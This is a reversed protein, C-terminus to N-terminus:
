RRRRRRALAGLAGLLVIISAPEPVLAVPEVPVVDAWATGYRLEDYSVRNGFYNQAFVLQQINGASSIAFDVSTFDPAGAALESSVDDPNIWISVLDNGTTITGYLDKELKMVLFYTDGVEVDSELVDVLMQQGQNGTNPNPDYRHRLILDITEGNGQFGWMLGELDRADNQNFFQTDTLTNNRVFGAVSMGTLDANSDLRLLGSFYYVTTSSPATSALSRYVRREQTNFTSNYWAGGGTADTYNAYSLGTASAQWTGTATTGNKWTGSFGLVTPNQLTAGALEAVTYEGAAPSSGILFPDSAILTAHAARPAVFAVAVVWM